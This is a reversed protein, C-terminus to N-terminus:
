RHRRLPQEHAFGRCSPLVLVLRVFIGFGSACTHPDRTLPTDALHRQARALGTNQGVGLAEMDVEGACVSTRSKVSLTSFREPVSRLSGDSESLQADDGAGGGLFFSRLEALDSPM